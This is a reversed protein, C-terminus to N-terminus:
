VVGFAGIGRHMKYIHAESNDNSYLLGMQKEFSFSKLIREEYIKYTHAESIDNSHLLDM